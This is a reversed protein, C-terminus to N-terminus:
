RRGLGGARKAAREDMTLVFDIVKRALAIEERTGTRQIARLHAIIRTKAMNAGKNIGPKPKM